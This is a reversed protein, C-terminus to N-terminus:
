CRLFPNVLDCSHSPTELFCPTQIQESQIHCHHFNIADHYRERHTNITYPEATRYRSYLLHTDVSWILNNQHRVTTVPSLNILISTSIIQLRESLSAQNWSKYLSIQMAQNIDQVLTPLEGDNYAPKPMGGGIDNRLIAM